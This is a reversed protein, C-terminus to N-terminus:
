SVTARHSYKRFVRYLVAVYYGAVALLFLAMAQLVPGGISDEFDSVNLAFLMISWGGAVLAYAVPLMLLHLIWANRFRKSWRWFVVSVTIPGFTAVLWGFCGAAQKWAPITQVSTYMEAAGFAADLFLASTVIVAVLAFIDLRNPRFRSEM